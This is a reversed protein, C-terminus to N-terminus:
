RAHLFRRPLYDLLSFLLDMSVYKVGKINQPDGRGGDLLPIPVSVDDGPKGPKFFDVCNRKVM